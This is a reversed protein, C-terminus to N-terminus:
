KVFGKRAFYKEDEKEGLYSGTLFGGGHILAILPRASLTDFQKGPYYLSLHLTDVNGEWNTNRRFVADSTMLQADNFIDTTDFRSNNCYGSL